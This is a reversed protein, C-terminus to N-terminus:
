SEQVCGMGNIFQPSILSGKYCYAHYADFEFKELRMTSNTQPTYLIFQSMNIKIIIDGNSAVGLPELVIYSQRITTQEIIYKKTWSDAVGYENMVWIMVCGFRNSFISLLGGLEGINVHSQDNDYEKMIESPQPVEQFVEDKVNFAVIVNFRYHGHTATLWHLAGDVFPSSNKMLSAHYSIGELIRWSGTGLTYVSVHSKFKFDAYDEVKCVQRLVKYENTARCFGFGFVTSLDRSIFDDPVPLCPITIHKGTLPNWIYVNSYEEESFNTMCLLGNCIGSVTYSSNPFPPLEFHVAKQCARYDEAIDFQTKGPGVRRRMILLSPNPNVQHLRQLHLKIFHPDITLIYLWTKSVCRFRLLPKVPLWSLIEMTVEDPFRKKWNSNKPAM